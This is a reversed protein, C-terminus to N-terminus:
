EASRTAVPADILSPKTRTYATRSTLSHTQVDSSLLMSHGFVDGDHALWGRRKRPFM